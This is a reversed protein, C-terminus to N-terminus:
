YFIEIARKTGLYSGISKICLNDASCGGSGKQNVFVQYTAGNSLIVVPGTGLPPSSRVMLIEEIGADAASLAIVSNGVQKITKTQGLFISSLGLAMALMVTIVVLALYLSSSRQDKIDLILYKM